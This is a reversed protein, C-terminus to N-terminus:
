SATATNAPAVVQAGALTGYGQRTRIPFSGRLLRDAVETLTICHVDPALALDRVFKEIHSFDRVDKTHNVLVVPVEPLGARCAQERISSLMARLTPYDCASIDSARTVGRVYRSAAKKILGLMGPADLDKWEESFNGMQANTAFQRKPVIREKFDRKLLSWGSQHFHSTPVSIIPQPTPAVRRADRMDPYFPVFSEECATYDLYLNRTNFRMGGVISTDFVFGLESLIPLMHDSPAICWAGSRYAVCRYGPRVPGLLSELYAKCRSIMAYAEEPPHDLISWNGKLRWKGDAYVAERWQSHVHLQVDHGARVAECLIGDWEDALTELEPYQTQYKRFTLQQMVEANISGPIGHEGLIRLFTRLPAFQIQRPDGSGNGRLEWDDTIVFYLKPAM